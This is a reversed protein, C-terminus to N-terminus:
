VKLKMAFDVIFIYPITVPIAAYLEFYQSADIFVPIFGGLIVIALISVAYKRISILAPFDTAPIRFLFVIWIIMALSWCITIISSVHNPVNIEAISSFLQVASGAIELALICLTIMKLEKLMYHKFYGFLIILIYGYAVIQLIRGIGSLVFDPKAPEVSQFVVALIIAKLILFVSSFIILNRKTKSITYDM